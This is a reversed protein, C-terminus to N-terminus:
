NIDTETVERTETASSTKDRKFASPRSLSNNIASSSTSRPPTARPPESSSLHLHGNLKAQWSTPRAAASTASRPRTATGGGTLVSSTRTPIPPPIRGVRAASNRPSSTVAVDKGSSGVRQMVAQQQHLASAPRSIDREFITARNPKQLLGDSGNILATVTPVNEKIDGVSLEGSTCKSDKQIDNSNFRGPVGSSAPTLEINSSTRQLSCSEDVNAFTTSNTSPTSALAVSFRNQVAGDDNNKYNNNRSSDVVGNMTSIETLHENFTVRGRSTASPLTSPPRSVCRVAPSSATVCSQAASTMVVCLHATTTTPLCAVTTLCLAASTVVTQRTGSTSNSTRTVHLTVCVPAVVETSTPSAAHQVSGADTTRENVRVCRISTTTATTAVSGSSSRTLGEDTYETRTKDVCRDRPPADTETSSPSPKQNLQVDLCRQHRRELRVEDCLQQFVRRQRDDIVSLHDTQRLRQRTTRLVDDRRVAESLRTLRLKRRRVSEALQWIIVTM